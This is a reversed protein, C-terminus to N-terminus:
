EKVIINIESLYYHQRKKVIELLIGRHPKNLVSYETVVDVSTNDEIEYPSKLTESTYNTHLKGDIYIFYLTLASIYTSVLDNTLTRKVTTPSEIVLADHTILSKSIVRTLLATEGIKVTHLRSNSRLKTKGLRLKLNSLSVDLQTPTMKTNIQM